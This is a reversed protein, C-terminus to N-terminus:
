KSFSRRKVFQNSNSFDQIPNEYIKEVVSFDVTKLEKNTSELRVKLRDGVYYSDFDNMSLLTFTQPNYVYEGPLNRMRVRGELLNDLQIVLGGNNISIVTGIFEEGIHRSLFVATDLLNVNKEVDEEVREMKSAQSAYEPLIKKWKQIAKKRQEEDKEFYCEDIIRSVTDDALRRIPSTFHGYISFGTGYHGINDASYSAHSMSRILNTSLTTYLPGSGEIHKELKQLYTKDNCIEEADHPFPMNVVALLRLFEELREKNPTGHIRYPCPIGKETLIEFVNVNGALMFEEILKESVGQYRYTLDYARGEDDYLFKKEPRNFEVAGSGIRKKRLVQALKVMERLTAEFPRYEEEVIGDQLLKNVKEYTMGLRSKIVSPVLSRSVINGDEDYEMLISKCLREVGDNLSCIGNSLKRPLQPEVCGGFYYSTGKRFADKHIPSNTPVYYPSDAIHVGLLVHGNPLKQLSICDDKDKTDAGDISFIEWDTFDYRGIKDENQVSMPIYELQRYSEESFGEPMGCKFAEFLADSHPDDKHRFTQLVKGIYYNNDREEVLSVSVIEGEIYDGDLAITLSQKKKDLPKVFYSNGSRVIEGTVVGITRDLVKEIKPKKGNGGTDLLVYDGDIANGCNERNLSYKEEKFVTEGEKNIYSLNAVVFGEGARNGNFRGKRFSTKSLLTYLGTPTQYYNYKNVEEALVSQIEFREEATLARGKEALMIEEIKQYIKDLSVPKKEKKLV